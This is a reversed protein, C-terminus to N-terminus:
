NTGGKGHLSILVPLAAGPRHGPPYSITWGTEARRHTSHFSGRLSPGPRRDPITGSGGDLGLLARLRRRGPVTDTAVLASGGALATVGVAAGGIVFARRSPDPAREGAPM